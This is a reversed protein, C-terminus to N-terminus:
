FPQWKLVSEGKIWSAIGVVFAAALVGDLRDLFGGHGPILRSVDKVGFHRKAASELLDGVQAVVALVASALVMWLMNGADTMWVLAAGVGMAALVGGALGSWTKSPSISPALKPGGFTRGVAYAGIDTAWVVGMMWVITLLGWDPDARLWVLAVCPLGLYLGGLGTWSAVRLRVGNKPRYNGLLILLPSVVALAIGVDVYGAGVAFVDLVILTALTIGFPRAGGLRVLRTWEWAMIAGAVAVFVTFLWGGQWIAFITVPALISASAIRWGLGERPQSLVFV